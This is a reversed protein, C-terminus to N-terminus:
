KVVRLVKANAFAGVEQPKPAAFVVSLLSKKIPFRTEFAALLKHTDAVDLNSVWEGGSLYTALGITVIDSYCEQGDRWLRADQEEADIFKKALAGFLPVVRSLIELQWM